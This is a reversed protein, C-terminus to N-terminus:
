RRIVVYVNNMPYASTKWIEEFEALRLRRNYVGGDANANGEISDALYIYEEDYGVVAVYHTDNGARIFAIVPVGESLRKKLTNIDGYYSQAAFGYQRFLAVVSTVPVFGFVRKIEPYLAEGDTEVGLYRLVYASAYASCANGSQYAIYSGSGAMWEAPVDEAAATDKKPLWFACVAIAAAVLLSIGIAAKKRIKSAKM